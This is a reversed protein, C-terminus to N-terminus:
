TAQEHQHKTTAQNTSKSLGLALLLGILICFFDGILADYLSSNFLCAIALALLTSQAARAHPREMKLTDRLVSLLLAFFLLIGPIGLQVGWLLYEQHPNGHSDADIYVPHQERQVRYFETVWSGVGSGALPHQGISHIATRWFNLRIASSTDPKHQASYALVETEVQSLRDRVKTSSFFLGLALLFPLMVIAARYKKPLEWMIAMSLLAIAIVHGTRGSLVFFVNAFAAFALFIALHRGFRGPAHERLHWCIAAFVASIIGQDLYSSFVAYNTLAMKSTAWPVPLHAFLMWSSGLLFGQAMVFAGLAYNAERRDRIILVMLVILILKGYKVLSGLAVDQPAVTWFFSLAFAFLAALVAIPTSMGTLPSGEAPLRRVFLLTALGFIVLLLKAISILAM